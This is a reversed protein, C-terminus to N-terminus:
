STTARGVASRRTARQTAGGDAPTFTVSIVIPTRARRSLLARGRHTLHVGLCGHGARARTAQGFALLHNGASTRWEVRARGASPWTIAYGPGGRHACAGRLAPATGAPEADVSAAPAPEAAPVPGEPAAPPQAVAGATAVVSDSPPVPPPQYEYAGMDTATGALRPNGDLDVGGPTAGAILDIVPSDPRLHADTDSVFGPDVDVNGAGAVFTGAGMEETTSLDIDSTDVQVDATGASARRRVSTAFGRVISGTLQATASGAVNCEAVLGFGAGPGIVTLHDAHLLSPTNANCFVQLAGGTTPADVRALSNAIDVLTGDVLGATTADIRARRVYLDLGPHADFGYYGSLASDIVDVRGPNAGTFASVASGFRMTLVSQSITAPGFTAVGSGGTSASGDVVVREVTGGGIWMGSMSAVALPMQITLDSVVVPANSMNMVPVGTAAAGTLVTVGSGSGTITVGESSVYSVNGPYTGPGIEITDPGSHGAADTLAQQISAGEDVKGGACGGSQHVCFVTASAAAPAAAAVLAGAALALAHHRTRV